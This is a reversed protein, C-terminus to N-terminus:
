GKDGLYQWWGVGGWCWVCERGVCKLDKGKVQSKSQVSVLLPLLEIVCVRRFGVIGGGGGRGGRADSM